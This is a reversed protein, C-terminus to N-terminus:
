NAFSVIHLYLITQESLNNIHQKNDGIHLCVVTDGLKSKNM